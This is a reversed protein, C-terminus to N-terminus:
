LRYARKGNPLTVKQVKKERKPKAISPNNTVAYEEWKPLRVARPRTVMEMNNESLEDFFMAEAMHAEERAFPAKTATIHVDKGRIHAKVCQHLTSPVCHHTHIWQRGLLLHYSTDAEIM